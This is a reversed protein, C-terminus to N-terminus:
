HTLTSHEQTESARARGGAAINALEDDGLEEISVQIKTEVQKPLVKAIVNLFAAPDNACVTRIAEIGSQEFIEVLADIFSAELKHRSGKPRGAPNLVAGKRVQGKANRTEMESGNTKPDLIAPVLKSKLAVGESAKLTNRPPM